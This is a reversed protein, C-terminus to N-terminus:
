NFKNLKPNKCFFNIFPCSEGIPRVILTSDRSSVTICFVQEYNLHAVM